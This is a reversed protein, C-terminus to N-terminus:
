AKAGKKVAEKAAVKEGEKVVTKEAAKVGKKAVVKILGTKTGEKILTKTAGEAMAELGEKEVTLMGRRALRATATITANEIGEIVKKEISEAAGKTLGLGISAREAAEHMMAADVKRAGKQRAIKMAEMEIRKSIGKALKAEAKAIAKDGLKQEVARTLKKRAM